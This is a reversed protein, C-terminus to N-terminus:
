KVVGTKIWQLVVDAKEIMGANRLGSIRVRTSNESLEWIRAALKITFIYPLDSLIEEKDLHAFVNGNRPAGKKLKPLPALFTDWWNAKNTMMTMMTMTMTMTM